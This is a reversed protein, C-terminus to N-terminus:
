KHGFKKQFEEEPMEDVEKYVNDFSRMINESLKKLLSMYDDIQKEKKKKAAGRTFINGEDKSNLLDYILEYIRHFEMHDDPISRASQLHYRIQGNEGFMKGCMCDTHKVPVLDERVILGKIKAEAYTVWRAHENKVNRIKNLIEIREM